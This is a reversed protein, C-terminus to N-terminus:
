DVPFTIGDLVAQQGAANMAPGVTVAGTTLVDILAGGLTNGSANTSGVFRKRTTPRYGVPLTFGTAGAATAASSYLTGDLRCVGGATGELRFRPIQDTGGSTFGAGFAPNGTTGVVHWTEAVAPNARSTGTGPEVATNTGTTFNGSFDLLRYLHYTGAPDHYLDQIQPQQTGDTSSALWTSLVSDNQATNEAGLIQIQDYGSVGSGNQRITQIASANTIGAAGTPFYILPEGGTLGIVVQPGGGYGVTIGQAYTNGYPDTGASPVISLLLDGPGIVPDYFFIGSYVSGVVLVLRRSTSNSWGNNSM